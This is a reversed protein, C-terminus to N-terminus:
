WGAAGRARRGRLRHPACALTRCRRGRSANPPGADGGTAMGLFRGSGELDRQVVSAIDLGGAGQPPQAFPVVAVPVPDTVGRTIDIKLEAQATAALFTGTLWLWKLRHMM